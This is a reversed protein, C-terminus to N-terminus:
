ILNQIVLLVDIQGRLPHKTDSQIGVVFTNYGRRKCKLFEKAWIKKYTKNGIMKNPNAYNRLAIKKLDQIKFSDMVDLVEQSEDCRMSMEKYRSGKLKKEMGPIDEWKRIGYFKCLAEDPILTNGSWIYSYQNSM